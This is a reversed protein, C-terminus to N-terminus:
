VTGNLLCCSIYGAYLEFFTSSFFRSAPRGFLATFFSTNLSLITPSPSLAWRVCFILLSLLKTFKFFLDVVIKSNYSFIPIMDGKRCNIKIKLSVHFAFVFLLLLYPHFFFNSIIACLHASYCIANFYLDPSITELEKQKFRM